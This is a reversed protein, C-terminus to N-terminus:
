SRRRPRCRLGDWIVKDIEAMAEGATLGSSELLDEDRVATAIHRFMGALFRTNIPPIEGAQAAEGLLQAFRDVFTDSIVRYALRSSEFREMDRRFGHSLASISEMASEYYCKAKDIATASERANTEADALVREGWHSIAMSVLSDKNPAIKYLSALSCHLERAIDNVRVDSFGRAAILDMVGDLLEERRQAAVGRREM